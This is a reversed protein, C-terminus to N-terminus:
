QKISDLWFFYFIGKQVKWKDIPNKESLYCERRILKIM